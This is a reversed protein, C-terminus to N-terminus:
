PRIKRVVARARRGASSACSCRCTPPLGPFGPRGARMEPNHATVAFVVPTQWKQRPRDGAQVERDAAKRRCGRCALEESFSPKASGAFCACKCMAHVAGSRLGGGEPPLYALPVKGNVGTDNHLIPDYMLISIKLMRSLASCSWPKSFNSATPPGLAHRYRTRISPTVHDHRPELLGAVPVSPAKLRWRLHPLAM